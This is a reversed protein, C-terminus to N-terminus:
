FGKFVPGLLAIFQDLEQQAQEILKRPYKFGAALGQLRAAWPPINCTVVPHSSPITAGDLRGVVIEELPDWETHSHVPSVLPEAADAVAASPSAHVDDDAATPIGSRRM